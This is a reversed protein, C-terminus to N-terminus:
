RTNLLELASEFAKVVHMYHSRTRELNYESHQVHAVRTKLRKFSRDVEHDKGANHWIEFTKMLKAWENTLGKEIHFGNDMAAHYREELAYWDFDEIKEGPDVEFEAGDLGAAENESTLILRQTADSDPSQDRRPSGLEPSQPHMAKAQPILDKIRPIPEKARGNKSNRTDVM